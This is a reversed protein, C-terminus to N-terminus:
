KATFTAKFGTMDLNGKIPCGSKAGTILVGDTEMPLSITDGPKVRISKLLIQREDEAYSLPIVTIPAETAHLTISVASETKNLSRYADFMIRAHPRGLSACPASQMTKARDSTYFAKQNNRPDLIVTMSKPDTDSITLQVPLYNSILPRQLSMGRVNEINPFDRIIVQAGDRAYASALIRNPHGDIPNVWFNKNNDKKNNNNNSRQLEITIPMRMVEFGSKALQTHAPIMDEEYSGSAGTYLAYKPLKGINHSLRNMSEIYNPWYPSNEPDKLIGGEPVTGIERAMTDPDCYRDILSKSINPFWPNLINKIFWGAPSDDGKLCDVLFINLPNTTVPDYGDGVCRNFKKCIWSEHYSPSYDNRGYTIIFADIGLRSIREPTVWDAVDMSSSGNKTLLIVEFALRGSQRNLEQELLLGWRNNSDEAGAGYVYSDGAVAVRIVDNSKLYEVQQKIEPGHGYRASLYFKSYMDERRWEEVSDSTEIPDFEVNSDTFTGTNEYEGPLNTYLREAQNALPKALQSEVMFATAILLTIGLMLASVMRLRFSM